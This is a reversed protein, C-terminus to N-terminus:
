KVVLPRRRGAQNFTQLARNMAERRLWEDAEVQRQPQAAMAALQAQQQERQGALQAAQLREASQLRETQMARTAGLQERQWALQQAQQEAIQAALQQAPSTGSSAIAVSSGRRGGQRLMANMQQQRLNMAQMREQWDLGSQRDIIQQQALQQSRAQSRAQLERSAQAFNMEAVTASGPAVYGAGASQQRNAAQQMAALQNQQMAQQAALQQRLLESQTKGRAGEVAIQDRAAAASAREMVSLEDWRDRSVQGPDAGRAVPAQYGPIQYRGALPAREAAIGSTPTDRRPQANSIAQQAAAAAAAAALGSAKPISFGLTERQRPTLKKPDGVLRRTLERAKDELKQLKQLVM